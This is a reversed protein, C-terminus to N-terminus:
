EYFVLRDKGAKLFYHRFAASEILASNLLASSTQTDKRNTKPGIEVRIEDVSNFKLRIYGHAELWDLGIKVTSTKQATAAALSSLTTVHDSSKIIYKLLGLLRRLFTESEDM